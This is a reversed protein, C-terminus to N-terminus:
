QRPCAVIVGDDGLVLGAAVFRFMCRLLNRYHCVGNYVRNASHLDVGVTSRGAFFVVALQEVEAALMAVLREEGIRMTVAM